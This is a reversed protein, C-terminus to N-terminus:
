DDFADLVWDDTPPIRDDWRLHVAARDFLHAGRHAVGRQCRYGYVSAACGSPAPRLVGVAWPARVGIGAGIRRPLRRRRVVRAHYWRPHV